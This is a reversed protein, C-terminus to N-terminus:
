GLMNNGHLATGQGVVDFGDGFRLLGGAMRNRFAQRSPLRMRLCVMALRVWRGGSSRSPMRRTSLPPTTSVEACSANTTCRERGWPCTAATSPSHLCNPNGRINYRVAPRVRSNARAPSMARTSAGAELSAVARCNDGSM